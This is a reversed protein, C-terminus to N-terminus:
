TFRSTYSNIIYNLHENTYTVLLFPLLNEKNFFSTFMKLTEKRRQRKFRFVIQSIRIELFCNRLVLLLQM